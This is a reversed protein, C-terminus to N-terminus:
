KKEKKSMDDVSVLHSIAATRFGGGLHGRQNAGAVRKEAGGEKLWATLL